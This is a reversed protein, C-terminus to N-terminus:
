RTKGWHSISLYFGDINTLFLLTKRKTKYNVIQKQKTEALFMVKGFKKENTIMIRSFFLNVRIFHNSTIHPDHESM